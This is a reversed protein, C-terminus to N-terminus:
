DTRGNLKDKLKLSTKFAVVRRSKLMMREGTRPNRGRRENKERVFFKGLGTIMVSEGYELTKKISEFLSKVAGNSITKSLEANQQVSKVLHNKTLTM